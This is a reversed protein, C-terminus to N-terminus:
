QADDGKSLERAVEQHSRALREILASDNSSFWRGVADGADAILKKRAPDAALENYRAGAQEMFEHTKEDSTDDYLLGLGGLLATTELPVHAPGSLYDAAVIVLVAAARRCPESLSDLEEGNHKVARAVMTAVVSSVREILASDAAHRNGAAANFVELRHAFQAAAFAEDLLRDSHRNRKTLWGFM